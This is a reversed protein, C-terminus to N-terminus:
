LTSGTNELSQRVWFSFKGRTVSFSIYNFQYLPYWALSTFFYFTSFTDIAREGVSYFISLVITKLNTRTVWAKWLLILTTTFLSPIYKSQNCFRFLQTMKHTFEHLLLHTRSEEKFTRGEHIRYWLEKHSFFGANYNRTTFSM